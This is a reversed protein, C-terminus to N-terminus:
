IWEKLINLITYEFEKKTIKAVDDKIPLEPVVCKDGLKSQILKSALYGAEGADRIYIVKEAGSNEVMEKHFDSFQSGFTAVSNDLGFEMLRLVNGVSETVFLVRKQQVYEKARWYNYLCMDTYFGKSAKWKPYFYPPCMGSNHYGSCRDCKKHISRGQCAIVKDGVRNLIPVVSRKNFFKGKTGCYGILQREVINTDFRKCFYPCPIVLHKRLIDLSIDLNTQVRVYPVPEPVEINPLDKFETNLAKCIFKITEAFGAPEERERSLLGRILGIPSGIFNNHCGRTRCKWSGTNYYNFAQKNDGMHIPCCGVLKNGHQRLSCHFYDLFLDIKNNCLQDIKKIENM